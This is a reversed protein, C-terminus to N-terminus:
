SQSRFATVQRNSDDTQFAVADVSVSLWSPQTVYTEDKGEISTVGVRTVSM